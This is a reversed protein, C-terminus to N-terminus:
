SSAPGLIRLGMWIALAAIAIGVIATAAGHLLASMGRLERGDRHLRSSIRQRLLGDRVGIVLTYAGTLALAAIVGFQMLRVITDTM